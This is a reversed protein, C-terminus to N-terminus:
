VPSPVPDPHRELMRKLADASRADTDAKPRSGRPHKQDDGRSITHCYVQLGKATAPSGQAALELMARDVIAWAYGDREHLAKVCAVLGVPVRASRCFGTFVERAEPSLQAAVESYGTVSEVPDQPEPDRARHQSTTTTERVRVEERGRTRARSPRSNNQNKDLRNSANTESKEERGEDPNNTEYLFGAAMMEALRLRKTGIKGALLKPNNPLPHEMRAALAGLKLIQAQIREDLQIFDADDLVATHLKVWPVRRDHYHQFTWWNKIALFKLTDIETFSASM